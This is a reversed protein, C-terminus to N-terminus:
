EDNWCQCRSDKRGCHICYQGALTEFVVSRQYVSMDKLIDLMVGVIVMAAEYEFKNNM